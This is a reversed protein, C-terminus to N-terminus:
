PQPHRRSDSLVDTAWSQQSHQRLRPLLSVLHIFAFESYKGYQYGNVYLQCRYNVGSGEQSFNSVSANSFVISLPIDWGDPFDLRFSTTYFGIGAKSLGNKFPSSSEWGSDPPSPYHYGQREAYMAGENLPGRALDHYQEGGLNGTVKWSVDSQEHNSIQYGLIGRPFKIADTGPAEEDQGMNDILVSFIHRTGSSLAMPITFNQTITADTGTGPWSGLFTDDLWVSHGFGTGGSVNLWIYSERGNASFHGRYLLSGTHFGYDMGYLSTPTDLDRPNTTSVKDCSNWSSDDYSPRIEPLSDIYKWRMNTLDPIDLKPPQYKIVASLKGTKSRSTKLQQGNFFLGKLQEVPASIIEVETTTNVDGSLYLQMDALKAGRILYGGKVIVLEKSRSSFNGIPQSAPLEMAWYNYAENRWVLYIELSSFRIVCRHVGVQWRVVWTSDKQHFSVNEGEIIAANGLHRSVAFEHAEGVGGYLILVRTSGPGKAWTFIEATSYILNIGGLDYDTIHFKSDRGYLTLSGGLQPISVNGLSTSLTLNYQTNETSAFDAHRIVYFNTQTGNGVLRTVAISAPAGYSGNVGLEPTATLYAPSVKLFNAELKQESYKERWIGREETIAAGYDYSTYGNQYGLNGWNTGGYTQTTTNSGATGGIYPGQFNWSVMYINFLKVGFSYNNKYVVRAAEANVLEACKEEVFGGRRDTLM